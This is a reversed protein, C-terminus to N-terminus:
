EDASVSDGDLKIEHKSELYRELFMQIEIATTSIGALISMSYIQKEYLDSCNAIGHRSMRCTM